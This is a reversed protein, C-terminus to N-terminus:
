IIGDRDLFKEDESNYELTEIIKEKSLKPM